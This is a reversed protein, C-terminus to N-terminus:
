ALKKALDTAKIHTYRKLMQLTKHGSIAAVEMVDFKSTEFLRSVAEHRLDHFHLNELFGHPTIGKDKEYLKQGIKKARDFQERVHWRSVGGFVLKSKINRPISQLTKAAITSLPVTRDDGNKTDEILLVRNGYDINKAELGLIEGQRMATETAIKILHPLLDFSTLSAGKLLYEYEDLELRRTRSNKVKPKRIRAVPNPIDLSWEQSAINYLHSLLGLHLKVTAPAKGAKTMDDRFKAFDAGTLKDLQIKCLSSKRINNIKYRESDYGKKFKSIENQYRDLAEGLTMQYEKGKRVFVGQDLEVLAQRQYRKADALTNFTKSISKQNDQRIRVRFSFDGRKEISM